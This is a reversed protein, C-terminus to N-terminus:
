RKLFGYKYIDLNGTYPVCQITQSINNLKKNEKDSCSTNMTWNGTETPAFRIKWVGSGNWFAPRVIVVGGPGTFTADVEVGEFPHAYKKSSNLTIEMMRWQQCIITQRQSSKANPPDAKVFLSLITMYVFICIRMHTCNIKNKDSYM